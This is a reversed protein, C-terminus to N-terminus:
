LVEAVTDCAGCIFAEQGSAVEIRSQASCREGCSKCTFVKTKAGIAYAKQAQKAAAFQARVPEPLEPLNAMSTQPVVYGADKLMTKVDVDRHMVALADAKEGVKM